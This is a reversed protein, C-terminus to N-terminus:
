PQDPQPLGVTAEAETQTGIAQYIEWARKRQGHPENKTPLTRLGLMLGGEAPHDIWRHYHFSEIWPFSQIKRMAYLLSGAQRDQADQEYSPTHFGQESLLVPRMQGNSNKMSDQKLFEGLVHINQITILPTDFDNGVKNDQWAVNAFLSQPYPHYAVGWAFDGEQIAYRQLTELTARPSLQGWPNAHPVQWNHTLSIFVRAHPNHSRAANHIMRMSRYYTEVCIEDPQKGMNTWVPHYDVENHAIWNAILGPPQNPDSYRQSIRQLVSGYIIAGRSTALDPMAYVGGDTEPHVLVSQSRSNKSRPILVVATVVIEHRRCFNVLLDIADFAAHNFYIPPGTTGIRDRQPGDVNTLFRNLVLNLTVASVGLEVLDTHPGRNSFASLGKQSAPRTPSVKANSSTTQFVSAYHRASVFRGVTEDPQSIKLRWGSYLRDRNELKRLVTVVLQNGQFQISDGLPIGNQDIQVHAPFEVLQIGKWTSTPLTPSIEGRLTVTKAAVTVDTFKVPFSTDLYSGIANAGQIKEKRIALRNATQDLERQTPSRIRINRLRIRHDPENGLDLRLLTMRQPLEVGQPASLEVSYEQWGEAIALDPLQLQTSATIPPGAFISLQQIGDACFYDFALVRQDPQLPESWQWVLFPDNGTTRIVLSGNQESLEIDHSRFPHGLTQITTVPDAMVINVSVSLHLSAMLMLTVVLARGKAVRRHLANRQASM